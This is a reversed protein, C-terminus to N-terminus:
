VAERELTIRADLDLGNDCVIEIANAVRPSVDSHAYDNHFFEGYRVLVEYPDNVIQEFTIKQKSRIFKVLSHCYIVYSLLVDYNYTSKFCRAEVTQSRVCVSTAKGPVNLIDDKKTIRRYAYYSNSVRRSIIESLPRFNNILACFMIQKAPTGIQQKSVHVHTGASNNALLCTESKIFDLLEKTKSTNMFADLTHPQLRIEVGHLVSCDGGISIKNHGEGMIKDEHARLHSGSIYSNTSAYEIEIGFYPEGIKTKTPTPIYRTFENVNESHGACDIKRKGCILCKDNICTIGKCIPCVFADDNQDSFIPFMTALM